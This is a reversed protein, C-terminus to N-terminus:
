VLKVKGRGSKQRGRPKDITYAGACVDERQGVRKAMHGM